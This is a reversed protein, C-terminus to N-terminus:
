KCDLSILITYGVLLQIILYWANLFSSSTKNDGNCLHPFWPKALVHFAKAKVSFVPQLHKRNGFTKVHLIFRCSVHDLSLKGPCFGFVVKEWKKCEKQSVRFSLSCSGPQYVQRSIKGELAITGLNQHAHDIGHTLLMQYRIYLLHNQIKVKLHTMQLNSINFYNMGGTVECETLTAVESPHFIYTHM